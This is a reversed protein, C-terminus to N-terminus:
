LVLVTLFRDGRGVSIRNGKLFVEHVPKRLWLRDILHLAQSRHDAISGLDVTYHPFIRKAELSVEHVTRTINRSFQSRTKM